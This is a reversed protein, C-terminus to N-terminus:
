SRTWRCRPRCDTNYEAHACGGPPQDPDDDASQDSGERVVRGLPSL